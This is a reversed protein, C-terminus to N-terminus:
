DFKCIISIFRYDSQKVYSLVNQIQDIIFILKYFNIITFVILRFLLFLFKNLKDNSLPGKFPDGAM